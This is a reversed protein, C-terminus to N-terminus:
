ANLSKKWNSEMEDITMNTYNRVIDVKQDYSTSRSINAYLALVVDMGFNKYLWLVFSASIIYDWGDYERFSEASLFYHKIDLRSLFRSRKIILDCRYRTYRSQLQCIDYSIEALGEQFLFIPNGMGYLLIHTLEHSECQWHLPSYYLCALKDRYAFTTRMGTMSQIQAKDNFYLTDFTPRTNIKYLRCLNSLAIELRDVLINPSFLRCGIIQGNDTLLFEYYERMDIVISVFRNYQISNKLDHYDNPDIQFLLIQPDAIYYDLLVNKTTLICRTKKVNNNLLNSALPQNTCYFINEESLLVYHQDDDFYLLGNVTMTMGFCAINAPKYNYKQYVPIANLRYVSRATHLTFM